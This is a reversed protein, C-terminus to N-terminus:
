HKDGGLEISYRWFQDESEFIVSSEKPDRSGAAYQHLTTNDESWVKVIPDVLKWQAEVESIHLYQSPDGEMLNLMLTEYSDITEDEKQRQALDMSLTRTAIDLGPIKSEIEMKVCERPQINIVLWNQHQGEVLEIPAKKFRISIATNGEHMRKATRVYFPVGKWRPNDIFLKVAAYTETNSSEIGERKLEELYGHVNEGHGDGVCVRGAAYQARFAQTKINKTDIPRISQLLKIKEARISEPTLDAPKEMAVLALTQLLHSQFMDRKAGTANYFTTRDGVGLTENNTIQVHDIHQNNWLPEFIANAFRTLMINQVASKGLYHDIRYIQSEKLYKTLEAQLAQATALDTGFPKEILVRRWYKSEDVLGVGSLQAVITAFDTPRVSLFYALNQPFVKEDSLKEQLKKFADPDTPPNSHYHNRAIFREFVKEDYGNKFKADLMSKIEAAWAERSLEGRGVSLIVMQEPLRGAADLRFLGPMLKIRSLNGSAGFLVLTCPDIKKSM